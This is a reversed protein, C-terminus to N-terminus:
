NSIFHMSTCTIVKRSLILELKYNWLIAFTWLSDWVFYTCQWGVAPLWRRDLFYITWRSEQTIQPAGGLLSSSAHWGRWLYIQRRLRRHCVNLIFFFPPAPSFFLIWLTEMSDLRLALNYWSQMFCRDRLSCLLCCPMVQSHWLHHFYDAPSQRLSNLIHM